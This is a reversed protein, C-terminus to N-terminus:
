SQWEQKHTVLDLLVEALGRSMDSQSGARRPYRRAILAALEAAQARILRPQADEPSRFRERVVERTLADIDRLYSVFERAAADGRMRSGEDTYWWGDLAGSALLGEVCEVWAGLATNGRPPSGSRAALWPHRSPQVNPGVYLFPRAAGLVRILSNADANCGRDVDVVELRGTAQEFSISRHFTSLPLAILRRLRDDMAGREWAYSAVTDPLRAAVTDSAWIEAGADAFAAAGGAKEMTSADLVVRRLTSTSSRRLADIMRAGSEYSSTAGVVTIERGDDIVLARAQIWDDADNYAYVLPAQALAHAAAMAFAGLSVLGGGTRVAARM